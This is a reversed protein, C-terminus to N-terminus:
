NTRLDAIASNSQVFDQSPAVPVSELRESIQREHEAEGAAKRMRSIEAKM